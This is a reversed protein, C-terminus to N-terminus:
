FIFYLSFIFYIFIVQQNPDKNYKTILTEVALDNGYYAASHLPYSSYYDMFQEATWDEPQKTTM